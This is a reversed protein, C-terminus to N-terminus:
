ASVLDRQRAAEELVAKVDAFLHHDNYMYIADAPYMSYYDAISPDDQTSLEVTLERIEKVVDTKSLFYAAAYLDGPERSGDPGGPKPDEGTVAKFLAGVLCYCPNGDKKIEFNHRKTWHEGNEGLIALADRYINDTM